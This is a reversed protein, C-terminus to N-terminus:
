VLCLRQDLVAAMLEQFIAPVNCFWITDFSAINEKANDELKVQKLGVEFCFVVLVLYLILVLALLTM